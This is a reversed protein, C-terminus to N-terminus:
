TVARARYAPMAQVKRFGTGFVYNTLRLWPLNFFFDFSYKQM